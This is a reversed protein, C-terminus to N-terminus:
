GNRVLKRGETEYLDEHAEQGDRSSYGRKCYTCYALANEITPENHLCGHCSLCNYEDM